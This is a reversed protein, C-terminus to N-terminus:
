VWPWGCFVRQCGSAGSYVFVWVDVLMHFASMTLWDWIGHFKCYVRVLVFNAWVMWIADHMHHMWYWDVFCFGIGVVAVRLLGVKLVVYLSTVVNVSTWAVFFLLSLLLISVMFQSVTFSAHILFALVWCWRYDSDWGLNVLVSSKASWLPSAWLWCILAVGM